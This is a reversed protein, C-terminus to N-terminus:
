WLVSEKYINTHCPVYKPAFFVKEFGLVKGFAITDCYGYKSVKRNYLSRYKSVQSSIPILWYINANERDKFSFFCPRDHEYENFMERNKMLKDDNFREFYEDKIYYFDNM